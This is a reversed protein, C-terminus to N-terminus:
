LTTSTQNAINGEEQHRIVRKCIVIQNETIKNTLIDQEFDIYKRISFFSRKIYFIWYYPENGSDMLKIPANPNKHNYDDVVRYFWDGFTIGTPLTKAKVIFRQQDESNKSLEVNLVMLKDFDVGQFNHPKQDPDFKWTKYIDFPISIFQVYCYYFVLPVVFIVISTAAMYPNGLDKSMWKFILTFLFGGVLICTLSLIGEFLISMWLKDIHKRFYYHLLNVHAIGLGLYVLQSFLYWYPNFLNGSFGLFGPLSLCFGSILVYLIIHKIKIAPKSKRILALIFVLIGAIIPMLLYRLFIGKVSGIEM